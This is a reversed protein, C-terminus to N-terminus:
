NTSTVISVIAYTQTKTPISRVHQFVRMYADNSCSGQIPGRILAPHRFPINKHKRNECRVLKIDPRPTQNVSSSTPECLTMKRSERRLPQNLIIHETTRSFSRGGRLNAMYKYDISRLIDHPITKFSISLKLVAALSVHKSPGGFCYQAWVWSQPETPLKRTSSM